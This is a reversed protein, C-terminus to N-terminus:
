IDLKIQINFEFKQFLCNHKYIIHAIYNKNQKYFFRLVTYVNELEEVSWLNKISM